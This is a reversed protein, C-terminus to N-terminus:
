FRVGLILQPGTPRYSSYASSGSAVHARKFRSHDIATRRPQSTNATTASAKAETGLSEGAVARGLDATPSVETSTPPSAVDADAALVPVSIGTLLVVVGLLAARNLQIPM